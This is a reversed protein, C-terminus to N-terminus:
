KEIVKNILLERKDILINNEILNNYIHAIICIRNYKYSVGTKKNLDIDGFNFTKILPEYYDSSMEEDANKYLDIMDNYMNIYIDREFSDMTKLLAVNLYCDYFNM